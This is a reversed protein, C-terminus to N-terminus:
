RIWAPRSGRVNVLMNGLQSCLSSMASIVSITLASEKGTFTAGRRESQPSVEGQPSADM